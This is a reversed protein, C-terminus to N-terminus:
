FRQTLQIGFRRGANSGVAGNTFRFADIQRDLANRVFVSLQTQAALQYGAHLDIRTMGELPVDSLDGIAGGTERRVVAGATFAGPGTGSRYDLRANITWPRVGQLERGTVNVASPTGANILGSTYRADLYGVSFGLNWQRNLQALLELELGDTRAKGVNSLFTFGFRDDGPDDQQVLLDKQDMRFVSLNLGVRGDLMQMKVGAELNRASEQSYPIYAPNTVSTNYGGPRYGSSYLAYVNIDKAAKFELGFSPSTFSYTNRSDLTFTPVVSAFLAAAVPHSGPDIGQIWHLSLRDVTRRLTATAALERTLQYRLDVFAAWSAVGYNSGASPIGASGGIVGLNPVGLFGLLSSDLTSAFQQTLGFDETFRSVGASWSFAKAPDSQWLLEVYRQQIDENRRVVQQLALPGASLPLATQDQDQIAALQYDRLSALLSLNGGALNFNLRGALYKQDIDNRSSTDRRVTERTEVPSRAVPGNTVGNPAYTRLSPSEAQSAEFTILGNASPGFDVAASLRLGKDSARDIEEGLTINYYDGKRQNLSWVTGRVAASEGLPMSAAGELRTGVNEIGLTAYGSGKAGPQPMTYIVNIAGGVADRGYLGGQPGRVIEVRQVDIQSGLNVRHGGAFVGNRYMGFNPEAGVDAQRMGRISIYTDFGRPNETVNANPVLAVIDAVSTAGFAKLGEGSIATVSAPVDIQSEIRRRATVEVRQPASADAAATQARVSAPLGLALVAALAVPTLALTIACHEPRM